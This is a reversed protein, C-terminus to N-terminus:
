LSTPSICKVEIEVHSKEAFFRVNLAAVTPRRSTDPHLDLFDVQKKEDSMPTSNNQFLSISSIM